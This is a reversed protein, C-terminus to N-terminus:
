WESKINYKTTIKHYVKVYKNQKRKFTISSKQTYTHPTHTDNQHKPFQYIQDQERETRKKENRSPWRWELLVRPLQGEYWKIEEIELAM